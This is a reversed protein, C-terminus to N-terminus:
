WCFIDCEELVCRERAIGNAQLHCCDQESAKIPRNTLWERGHKTELVKVEVNLVHFSNFVGKSIVGESSLISDEYNLGDWCMFTALLNVGLSMEGDCSSQCEVIVSVPKM